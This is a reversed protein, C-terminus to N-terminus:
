KKKLAGQQWAKDKRKQFYCTLAIFLVFMGVLIGYRGLLHTARSDQSAITKTFPPYKRASPNNDYNEPNYTGANARTGKPVDGALTYFMRNVDATTGLTDISWKSITVYSLVEGSDKLEFVVGALIIQPVLIIPVISTAKDVNSAMASILLGMGLGGMTTLWVGVIMEVAPPLLGGTPPVGAGLMVIGALMVSQVLCLLSLVVVKSMVYPVVRLNVLRERMYIPTEKTIEKAANSCGLWVAAISLVFLVQQANAPSKGSAFINQGAVLALIGGIIPAQLLLVLMNVRDRAVLNAYRRSLIFFQRWSSTKATRFRGRSGNGPLMRGNAGEAVNLYSDGQGSSVEALEAQIYRKYYESQRYRTTWDEPQQELKTYIDAFESVEFFRLAEQPPGFYALRGGPAMFAVKDCVAINNTAHTILIVTRGRDALRRLLFMMRKDLGPDLGSTPEDLFFLIPQSLLEVAISVRKRQGGSLRSVLVKRRHSMEVDELVEAIRQEIEAATTDGPLRLKAVYYLAQEVTLDRHIIDEQPVYGLSSRYAAFNQYYDEGNLLVQGEPAPRFGNLADMLTSKGTGSGGVLAVFEKPQISISVDDLLTLRNNNVRKSINIADLRVTEDSSQSIVDPQYVLEYHVIQFTDGPHLQVPNQRQVRRGKFYTGNTSGLDQLLATGDPQRKLVAHFASIPPYSLVILNRDDRGITINQNNTDLPLVYRSLPAIHAEDEFTLTVANGTGQPEFIRVVDGNVLHVQEVKYGKYYIGGPSNQDTITYGDLGRTLIAHTPAVYSLPIVIASQPNSGLTLQPATLDYEQSTAGYSVHLRVEGTQVMRGYGQDEQGDRNSDTLAVTPRPAAIESQAVVRTPRSELVPSAQAEEAHAVTTIPPRAEATTPPEVPKSVVTPPKAEPLEVEVASPTATAQAPKVALLLRLVLGGVAFQSGHQLPYTTSFALEQPTKGESAPVLVPSTQSLNEVLWNRGDFHLRAHYRSVRPYNLVIDNDAQRGISLERKTLSFEQVLKGGDILQIRAQQSNM